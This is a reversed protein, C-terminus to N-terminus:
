TSHTYANMKLHPVKGGIDFFFKVSVHELSVYISLYNDTLDKQLTEILDM